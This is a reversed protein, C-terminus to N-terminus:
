NHGDNILTDEEEDSDGSDYSFPDPDTFYDSIVELMSSQDDPDLHMVQNIVTAIECAKNHCM